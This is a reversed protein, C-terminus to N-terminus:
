DGGVKHGVAVANGAHTGSHSRPTEENSRRTRTFATFPSARQFSWSRTFALRRPDLGLSRLRLRRRRWRRLLRRRGRHGVDPRGLRHLFSLFVSLQRKSDSGCDPCNAPEDMESMPRLKEFVNSCITCAYEYIPM